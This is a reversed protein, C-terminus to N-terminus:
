QGGLLSKAFAHGAEAQEEESCYKAAFEWVGMGKIDMLECFLKNSEEIRKFNEAYLDDREKILERNNLKLGNIMRKQRTIKDNAQDLEAKLEAITKILNENTAFLTDNDESLAENELLVDEITRVPSTNM